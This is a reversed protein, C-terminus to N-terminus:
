EFHSGQVAVSVSAVQEANVEAPKVPHETVSHECVDVCTESQRLPDKIWLGFRSHKHVTVDNVSPLEVAVSQQPLVM